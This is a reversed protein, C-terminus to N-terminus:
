RGVAKALSGATTVGEARDHLAYVKRAGEYAPPVEPVFVLRSLMTPVDPAATDMPEHVASLSRGTGRSHQGPSPANVGLPADVFPEGSAFFTQSELCQL